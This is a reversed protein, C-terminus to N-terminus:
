HKSADAPDELQKLCLDAYGCQYSAAPRIQHVTMLVRRGLGQSMMLLM